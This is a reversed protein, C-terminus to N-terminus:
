GKFSQRRFVAPSVSTRESFAEYFASVSGFGCDMSITVIKQDTEALLMQSHAIRMDTIHSKITRGLMKKFLLIAYNTSVGAVQAVNSSNIGDAYHEAVYRLMKEFQVVANGGIAKETTAENPQHLVDWGELAMRRLRAEVESAHLRQWELNEQDLERAWRQTLPGDGPDQEKSLLVAGSLLTNVFAPPLSWRLFESLSVYANTIWGDANVGVARHPFAAWFVCFRNRQIEIETGSFSYLMDCDVLYNLEISPHFHFHEVFSGPQHHQMYVVRDKSVYGSHAYHSLYGREAELGTM